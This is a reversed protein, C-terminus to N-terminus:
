GMLYPVRFYKWSRPRSPSKGAASGELPPQAVEAVAPAKKRKGAPHSAGCRTRKGSEQGAPATAMVREPSALRTRLAANGSGGVRVAGVAVPESAGSDKGHPQERVREQLEELTPASSACRRLLQRKLVEAIADGHSEELNDAGLLLTETSEVSQETVIELRTEGPARVLM